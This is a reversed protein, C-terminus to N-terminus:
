SAPWGKLPAIGEGTLRYLGATLGLPAAEECRAIAGLYAVADHREALALLAFSSAPFAVAWPGPHLAWLQARHAPALPRSADLGDGSEWAVLDWDQAGPPLPVLGGRGLRYLRLPQPAHDLNALAQELLRQESVGWRTLCEPQLFRIFETHEIGFQWVLGFALECRLACAARQVPRLVPVIRDQIAEFPAEEAPREQARAVAAAVREVHEECFSPDRRCAPWLEGSAVTRERAGPPGIRLELVNDELAAEGPVGSAGLAAQLGGAVLACDPADEPGETLPDPAGAAGAERDEIQRLELLARAELAPECLPAEALAEDLAASAEEDRGLALLARARALSAPWGAGQRLAHNLIVIAQQARDSNVLGQGFYVLRALEDPREAAARGLWELENPELPEGAEVRSLLASLQVEDM